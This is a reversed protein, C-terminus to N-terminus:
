PQENIIGLLVKAAKRSPAMDGSALQALAASFAGLQAERKSDDEILDTVTESLVNAKCQDQLCEPVVADDMLVNILNVYRTKALRRFVFASLPNVKYAIVHPVGAKALELTVTGSAALAAHSAAFADNREHEGTVVHVPGPLSKAWERVSPEVGEVTPVVMHMDPFRDHLGRITWGFVPMLARVEAKRSGPLVALVLTDDGLGHAQRFRKGDAPSAPDETVPHGVWTTELGYRQFLPPEFPMLTLLHDIWGALQKARGPRWAWVQPAVYRVRKISSNRNALAKHIRGTFGWSDVTVLIDPNIREIDQLVERVRRLVLGAKPIVEFIGLIALDAPDFLTKLGTTQMAPGGVGSFHIEGDTERRLADMLRAGLVDGSPELALVYISPPSATM